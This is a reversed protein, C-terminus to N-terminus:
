GPEHHHVHHDHDHDHNHYIGKATTNIRLTDNNKNV